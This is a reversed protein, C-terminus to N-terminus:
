NKLEHEPIKIAHNHKTITSLIRGCAGCHILSITYHSGRDLSALYKDNRGQALDLFQGSRECMRSRKRQRRRVADLLPTPMDPPRDMEEELKDKYPDYEYNDSM